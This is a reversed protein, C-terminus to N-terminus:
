LFRKQQGENSRIVDAISHQMGIPVDWSLDAYNPNRILPMKYTDVQLTLDSICPGFVSNKWRANDEWAVNMVQLGHNGALRKATPDNIM